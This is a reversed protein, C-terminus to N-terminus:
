QVAVPAAERAAKGAPTGEGIRAALELEARSRARQKPDSKLAMGLRYHADASSGDAAVAAEYDAVAGKTDKQQERCTGRRVYSAADPRLAIVRDLAQVCGASEGAEAFRRGIVDLMAVDNGAGDLARRLQEVARAREKNRALMSGYGIRTVVSEERALAAEFHKTSTAVDGKNGYANGLDVMLRVSNPRRSRLQELLKIADDARKPDELFLAVLGEAAADFQPDLALAANYGAEAGERDGTKARSLGLFYSAEANKPDAASARELYGKAEAYRQERMFAMGREFDTPERSAGAGSAPEAALPPEPPPPPAAACALLTLSAGLSLMRSITAM